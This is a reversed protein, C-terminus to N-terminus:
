GAGMMWKEVKIRLEGLVEEQDVIIDLYKRL